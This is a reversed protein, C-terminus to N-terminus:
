AEGRGTFAGVAERALRVKYADTLDPSALMDRLFSEFDLWDILGKRNNWIHDLASSFFDYGRRESFDATQQVFERYSTIPKTM